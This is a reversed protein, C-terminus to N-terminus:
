CNFFSLSAMTVWRDSTDNSHKVYGTQNAALKGNIQKVLNESIKVLITLVDSLSKIKVKSPTPLRYAAKTELPQLSTPSM